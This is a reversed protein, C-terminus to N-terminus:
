GQGSGRWFAVIQAHEAIPMHIISLKRWGAAELAGYAALVPGDKEDYDSKPVVSILLGCGDPLDIVTGLYMEEGTRRLYTLHPSSFQSM